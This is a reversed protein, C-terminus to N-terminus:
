DAPEVEHECVFAGLRGYNYPKGDRGRRHPDTVDTDFALDYFRDVRAPTGRRPDAPIQREHVEEVTGVEGARFCGPSDPNSLLLKQGVGYPGSAQPKRALELSM